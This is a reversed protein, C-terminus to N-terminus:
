LPLNLKPNGEILGLSLRLSFDLAGSGVHQLFTSTMSRFPSTAHQHMEKNVSNKGVLEARLLVGACTAQHMHWPTM